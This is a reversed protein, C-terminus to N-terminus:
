EVNQEGKISFFIEGKKEFNQPKIFQINVKKGMLERKPKAGSFLHESEIYIIGAGKEGWCKKPWFVWGNFFIAWSCFTKKRGGRLGDRERRGEIKKRFCIRKM